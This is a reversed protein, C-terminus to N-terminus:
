GVGRVRVAAAGGAAPGQGGRGGPSAEPEAREVKPNPEAPSPKRGGLQGQPQLAALVCISLTEFVVRERSEM